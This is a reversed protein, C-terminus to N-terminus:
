GIVRPVRFLGAERAPDPANAIADTRDLSRVVVDDREAAHGPVVSTTPPVGSTDIQQLQNVYDLIDGLQRGFLDLEADTLELQALSAIAQVESRSFQPM